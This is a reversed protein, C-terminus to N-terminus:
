HKMDFGQPENWQTKNTKTNWYYVQGKQLSVFPACCRDDFVACNTPLPRPAPSCIRAQERARQNWGIQERARLNWGPESTSGVIPGAGRATFAISTRAHPAPLRVPDKLQKWPLSTFM